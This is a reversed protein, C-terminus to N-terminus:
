CTPSFTQPTNARKVIVATPEIQGEEENSEDVCEESAEQSLYDTLQVLTPAARRRLRAEAAKLVVIRANVVSFTVTISDLERSQTSNNEHRAVPQLHNEATTVSYCNGAGTLTVLSSSKQWCTVLIYVSFTVLFFIIQVQYFLSTFM